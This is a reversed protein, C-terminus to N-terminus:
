RLSVAAEDLARSNIRIDPKNLSSERNTALRSRFNRPGLSHGKPCAPHHRASANEVLLSSPPLRQRNRPVRGRYGKICPSQIATEGNTRKLDTHFLAKRLRLHLM